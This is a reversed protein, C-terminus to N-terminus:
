VFYSGNPLNGIQPGIGFHTTETPEQDLDRVVFGVGGGKFHSERYFIVLGNGPEPSDGVAPAAQSKAGTSACGAVLFGILSMIFGVIVAVFWNTSPPLPKMSKGSAEDTRM